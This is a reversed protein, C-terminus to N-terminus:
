VNLLIITFKIISIPDSSCYAATSQDMVMRSEMWEDVWEMWELNWWEASM